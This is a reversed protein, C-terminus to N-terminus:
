RGVGFSTRNRWLHVAAWLAFLGFPAFLVAGPSLRGVYADRVLIVTMSYAWLANVMQGALWGLSTHRWLGAVSVVLLPVSWVVDGVLFGLTTSAAAHAVPDAIAGAAFLRAYALGWFAVTLVAAVANVIAITRIGASPSATTV